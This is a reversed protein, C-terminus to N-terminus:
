CQWCYATTQIEQEKLFPIQRAVTTDAKNRNLNELIQFLYFLLLLPIHDSCKFIFPLVKKSTVESFYQEETVYAIVKLHWKMFIQLELSVRNDWEKGYTWCHFLFPHFFLWEKQVVTIKCYQLKFFQHKVLSGSLGLDCPNLLQSRSQLFWPCTCIIVM